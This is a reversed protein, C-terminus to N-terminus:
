VVNVISAFVTMHSKKWCCGRRSEHAGDERLRRLVLDARDRAADGRGDSGRAPEGVHLARQQPGDGLRERVDVDVVAGELRQPGILERGREGLPRELVALPDEMVHHEGLEHQRRQRGVHGIANSHVRERDADLVVEHADRAAVGGPHEPQGPHVEAAVAEGLPPVLRLECWQVRLRLERVLEVEAAEVRLQRRAPGGELLQRAARRTARDPLHVVSTTERVRAVAGAHGRVERLVVEHVHEGVVPGREVALDLHERQDPAGVRVRLAERPQRRHDAQELRPVHGLLAHELGVDVIVREPARAHPRTEGVRDAPALVHRLLKADVEERDVVVLERGLREVHDAVAQM